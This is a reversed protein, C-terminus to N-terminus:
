PSLAAGHYDASPYSPRRARDVRFIQLGPQEHWLTFSGPYANLLREFCAKDSPVWYSQQRDTVVVFDVNYKSIGEMLQGPDSLPPFWVVRRRGHHYVVDLQRAMIVAATPAHDRVWQGAVVDLEQTLDTAPQQGIRVERVVGATAIAAFAVVGVLM